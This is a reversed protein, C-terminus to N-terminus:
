EKWTGNVGAFQGLLNKAVSRKEFFYLLVMLSTIM